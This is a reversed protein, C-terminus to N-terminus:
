KASVLAISSWLLMIQYLTESASHLSECNTSNKKRQVSLLIVLFFHLFHELLM